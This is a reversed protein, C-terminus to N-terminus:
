KASPKSKQVVGNRASIQRAAESLRTRLAKPQVVECEPGLSLLDRVCREGSEMQVKLTVWGDTESATTTALASAAWAGLERFWDAGAPSLRLTVPVQRLTAEFRTMAEHWVRPLNFDRPRVFPAGDRELRRIGAVRFTLYEAAALGSARHRSSSSAVKADGANDARMAVLYWRGAKMVLGLPALRWDRKGRWSEYNLLVVQKQVLAQALPPLFPVPDAAHYWDVPDLHFLTDTDQAAGRAAMPLAALLKSRGSSAAGTLGLAEMAQPMGNLLVTKAEETTLGTLDTHFGDVLRFGGGPGREAFVPVGAASLEDIDRYVTRESVEFARSMEQATVRTNLQLLILMSLLRSARM